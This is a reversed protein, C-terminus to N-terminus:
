IQLAIARFDKLRPVRSPSTSLLVVKLKFHKFGTYTVSGSTYQFEGSGGTLNATPINFEYEEFDTEDETDSVVTSATIQTLELWTKDEMTQGDEANLFKGYVKITATSPKYAAFFVKLDEADQGEALTVTKQIYRALANGNSTGDENTSDNNILNEVTFIASRDNDIAPSHRPNSTNTLITKLEASKKGSIGTTENSKSLVFRRTDYRTESNINVSKFASDLASGSTALKATSAATTDQLELKSTFVKFTDIPLNDVSVIRADLGSVQGRIYTNASFSGSPSSLHMITNSQTVTDFFHVRGTPTSQSSITANVGTNASSGAAYKYITASDTFKTATTVEKVRISSGSNFTVIANAQASTTNAQVIIDGVNASIAGSLTLSTEGHVLENARDFATTTDLEDLTLYEKDINKFIATGTQNTGFNAFYMTYKLDEEQIAQWQRDNSSAFLVGTAPQATVRNGTILDNRGLRATWVVCNTNKNAPVLTLAYEESNLLYVPTEFIVPTASSGDTSTNIDASPVIQRSFPVVRDTVVQSSPEVERIEVIVPATADKASFFLDVKSVYAGPSQFNSNDNVRFTQALPDTSRRPTRRVGHVVRTDVVTRTSIDIERTSIITGQTTVDLGGASYNAEAATVAAGTALSNTPSDTLRFRLNGVPFRIQDNNPIRFNAYLEGESNTILSSGESATNAFSTNAPSVYANVDTGDFFAYVRTSPKLGEAKVNVERSRMFPILGVNQVSDGLNNEVVEGAEVVLQEGTRQQTVAVRQMQNGQLDPPARGIVQAGVEEFEGFRAGVFNSIEELAEAFQGFDINVSPATTVDKFFDNDPTLTIVGQFSFSLGAINRTDTAFPQDILEEHTWPLMILKGANPTTVASVTSTASSTGGVVNAADTFTGSVGRLYLKQSVQHALTGSASGQTVTEGVTYTATTSGITITADKSTATINTSNASKFEMQVDDLKYTPRAEKKTKHIAVKYGENFFDSSTFDAFQDVIIGNKFRDVGSANALFLNKTDSELLSLSTYYELNGIREALGNIDKMTYRRIRQPTIRISLENRGNPSTATSIRKANEQPLSPFPKVNVVAITMGDAPASPTKPDLSPVGKVVRFEGADTIVIRDKRPLYYDFDTIFDENPAMYRLGGSPEVIATSTAPNRSINTLVTVSNATDTIRPRIDINNRLDYQLDTVQSRYVPIEATQIATTNATNADDVPYSNVSLYGKGQSTDHTFYDMKVLYTQGNAISRSSSSKLKLRSHDYHNDRMGTDLEFDGTVDTGESTSSFFTNGTKLRVEKLKHGDSLGLPWPGTLGHNAFGDSINIEVLRDKNIVKAIERGDVKKLETTVLAGVTGGLTEQIDITASTTSNITVSRAAADGGVGNLSIVQGPTFFKFVTAGSLAGGEGPGHYNVSTASNLNSIVYTNSEGQLQIKDGINYKTTVSTLGTVTNSNAIRAATTDRATASNATGTLVVHFNEREQTNNLAGTSFPYQEDAGSTTITVTGDAAITAAEQKFFRFENDLANSTDRLTKINEAPILFMSRNFGTESLTASGNTLITDAIGDTSAHDYRISRVFSFSNATMNIDYLYLKMRGRADGKTGSDYQIARARAEGIKSGRTVTTFTNNSIARVATDYLEVRDHGNVDWSGVVEDVLTYNGYNAPISVNEVSGVDTGKDLEIHRTVLNEVKYGRVYAQGASIDAVLKNINGGDGSLFVGGNNASNLHERMRLTLGRVIYNGSEDFTREAIYDNIISYLPKDAKYEIDGNKIRCREVFNTSANATLSLTTINATLKLRDAGPAAYNFSGQAPDQLTTDSASTVISETINYGVKINTNSTYRGIITNAADVRIFHDKAFIMGDGFSIRSADGTVQSSQVGETIVNASLSTNSTLREGSQFAATTGLSGSGTYRIYLTKTNPTGAESGDISDIVFATVGSTTGTLTSGVFAAANVSAGNNDNDRVKVYKLLHDYNMELGSVTSGEQFIHEAFRDVQSQMISQMQTLERAQVALGPRFLIRHFNKTEDYDDYYPDVNLDTSLTVTNALAM